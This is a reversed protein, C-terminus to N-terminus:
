AQGGQVKRIGGGNGGIGYVKDARKGREWNQCLATRAQSGGALRMYETFRTFKEGERGTKVYQVATRM